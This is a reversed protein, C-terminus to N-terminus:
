NFFIFIKIFYTIPYINNQHNISKFQSLHNSGGKKDQTQDRKFNVTDAGALLEM